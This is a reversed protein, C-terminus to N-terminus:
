EYQAKTRDPVFLEQIQRGVPKFYVIQHYHKETLIYNHPYSYTIHSKRKKREGIVGGWNEFINQQSRSDLKIKCIEIRFNSHGSYM